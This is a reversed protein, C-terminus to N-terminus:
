LQSGNFARLPESLGAKVEAKRAKRFVTLCAKAKVSWEVNGVYILKDNPGESIKESPHRGLWVARRSTDGGPHAVEFFTPLTVNAVFRRGVSHM